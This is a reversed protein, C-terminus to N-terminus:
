ALLDPMQVGSRQMETVFDLKQDFSAIIHSIIIEPDTASCIERHKSCDSLWCSRSRDQM